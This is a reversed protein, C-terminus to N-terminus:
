GSVTANSDSMEAPRISAAKMSGSTITYWFFTRGSRCKLTTGSVGGVM